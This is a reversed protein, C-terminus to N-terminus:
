CLRYSANISSVRWPCRPNPVADTEIGMREYEALPEYVNWGDSWTGVASVASSTNWTEEAHRFAFLLTPNGPHAFAELAQQVGRVDEDSALLLTVIRLDKTKVLM